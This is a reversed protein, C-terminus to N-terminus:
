KVVIKNHIDAINTYRYIKISYCDSLLYVVPVLLDTFLTSRYFLNAYDCPQAREDNVYRTKGGRKEIFLHM